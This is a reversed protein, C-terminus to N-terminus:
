SPHMKMGRRRGYILWPLRKTPPPTGAAARLIIINHIPIHTDPRYQIELLAAHRVKYGLTLKYNTYPATDLPTIAASQINDVKGWAGTVGTVVPAVFEM